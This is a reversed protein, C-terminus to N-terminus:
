YQFHRKEGFFAMRLVASPGAPYFFEMEGVGQFPLIYCGLTLDFVAVRPFLAIIL